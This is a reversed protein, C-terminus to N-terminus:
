SGEIRGCVYMLSNNWKNKKRQKKSGTICLLELLWPFVNTKFASHMPVRRTSSKQLALATKM